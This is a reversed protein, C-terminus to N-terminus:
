LWKIIKILVAIQLAEKIDAENHAKGGSIVIEKELYQKELECANELYQRFNM